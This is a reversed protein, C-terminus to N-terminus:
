RLHILVSAELIISLCRKNIHSWGRFPLTESIRKLILLLLCDVLIFKNLPRCDTSFVLHFLDLKLHNYIAKCGELFLTTIALRLNGLVCDWHKLVIQSLLGHTRLWLIRDTDLTCGFFFLKFGFVATLLFSGFGCCFKIILLILLCGIALILFLFHWVRLSVEFWQKVVTCLNSIM